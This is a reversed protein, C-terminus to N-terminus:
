PVANIACGNRFNAPMKASQTLPSFYHSRDHGDTQAGAQKWEPEKQVLRYQYKARTHAM